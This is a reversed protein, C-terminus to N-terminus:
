GKAKLEKIQRKLERVKDQKTVRGGTAKIRERENAKNIYHLAIICHKRKLLEYTDDYKKISASLQLNLLKVQKNAESAKKNAAKVQDKLSEIKKTATKSLMEKRPKATTRPKRPFDNEGQAIAITLITAFLSLLLTKKM